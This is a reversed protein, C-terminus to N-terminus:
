PLDPKALKFRIEPHQKPTDQLTQFHPKGTNLDSSRSDLTIGTLAILFAFLILYKIEIKNQM